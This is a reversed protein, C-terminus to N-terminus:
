VGAPGGGVAVVLHGPARPAQENSRFAPVAVKLFGVIYYRPRSQLMGFDIPDTLLKATWYGLENLESLLVGLQGGNALGVVNEIMIYTPKADVIYKKFGDFCSGTAGVKDQIASRNESTGSYANLGSVTTCPIGAVLFRVHPVLREGTFACEAQGRWLENM